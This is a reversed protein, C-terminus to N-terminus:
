QSESRALNEVIDIKEKLLILEPFQNYARRLQVLAAKYDDMDIYLQAKGLIASKQYNDLGELRSYLVGAEAYKKQQRLLEAYSAIARGNVPNFQISKAFYELADAPNKTARFYDAQSQYYISKETDSFSEVRQGLAAVVKGYADWRGAQELWMLYNRTTEIALENVALDSEVIGVARSYSGNQLHLQVASKLTNHSKDGLLMAMELGVIASGTDNKELALAARNLWLGINDPDRALMESLLSSAGEFLKAQTLAALLGQQWQVNDPEIALAQQYESIATYPGFQTLNLYGLQGHISAENSGYSVAQAFHYRAKSPRDTLMYLQAIDSHGRVLQPKRSLVSLYIKEAKDYEELSFYIQAKLALMAVSLEIDYFEALRALVEEKKGTDLLERLQEAMEYEDPAISAERDSFVGSFQPLTFTPSPVDIEIGATSDVAAQSLSVLCVLVLLSFCVILRQM